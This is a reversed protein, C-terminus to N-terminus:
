IQVTAIFILFSQPHSLWHTGEKHKSGLWKQSADESKANKQRVCDNRYMDQGLATVSFTACTKEGCGHRMRIYLPKGPTQTPGRSYSHFEFQLQSLIPSWLYWRLKWVYMSYRHVGRSIMHQHMDISSVKGFKSHILVILICMLFHSRSGNSYIQLFM